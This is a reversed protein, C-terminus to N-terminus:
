GNIVSHLTADWTDHQESSTNGCFSPLSAITKLLTHFSFKCAGGAWARLYVSALSRRTTKETFVSEVKELITIADMAKQLAVGHNVIENHKTDASCSHVENLLAVQEALWAREGDSLLKM